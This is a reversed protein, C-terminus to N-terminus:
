VLKLEHKAKNWVLIKRLTQANKYYVKSFIVYSFKSFKYVYHINQVIKTFDSMANKTLVLNILIWCKAEFWDSRFVHCIIQYM